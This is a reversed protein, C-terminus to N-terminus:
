HIKHNNYNQTLISSWDILFDQTQKLLNIVQNLDKSCSNVKKTLEKRNSSSNSLRWPPKDKLSNIKQIIDFCNSNTLDEKNSFQTVMDNIKAIITDICAILHFYTNIDVDKSDEEPFEGPLGLIDIFKYKKFNDIQDVLFNLNYKLYKIKNVTEKKTFDILNIGYNDPNKPKFYANEIEYVLKKANNLNKIIVLWQAHHEMQNITILGKNLNNNQM